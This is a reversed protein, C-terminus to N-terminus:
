AERSVSPLRYVDERKAWEADLLYEDWRRDKSVRRRSGERELLRNRIRARHDRVNDDPDEAWASRIVWIKALWPSFFFSFPFGTLAGMVGTPRYANVGEIIFAAGVWMGFFLAAVRRLVFWRRFCAMLLLAQWDFLAKIMLAPVVLGVILIALLILISFLTIM